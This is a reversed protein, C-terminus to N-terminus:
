RRLVEANHQGLAPSPGAAPPPNSFAIPLGFAPKGGDDVILGRARLQANELAEELTLVPTVCADKEALLGVWADRTRTRFLASLALRLPALYRRARAPNRLTEGMKGFANISSKPERASSSDGDGSKRAGFVKELAKRLVAPSTGWLAQGLRKLFKPELAGIALYKGDRCKYISYNPLAGSLIDGGRPFTRGHERLSALAIVQMAASGDTMSVDVFTGAGTARAGHLAALIGIVCTLGGGALDAIQLNAQAPPGGARGFQDLVGAIALYNLDHGPWDRYPGNQGYGTLAAYVLKPTIKKLEEYGCGLRDMVGPRFSELVVDAGEVLRKFTTVDEAKRLDLTVSKKGRNVQAFLEPSERAYDGGDPEEIKIVEAGLQALYLSCFPGPLLRSLDLVRVGSLLPNTTQTMGPSSVTKGRRACDSQPYAVNGSAGSVAMLVTAGVELWAVGAGRQAARM